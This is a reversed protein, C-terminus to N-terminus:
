TIGQRSYTYHNKLFCEKNKQREFELIDNNIFEMPQQFYPGEEINFGTWPNLNSQPPCWPICGQPPVEQEEFKMETKVKLSGDVVLLVTRVDPFFLKSDEGTFDARNLEMTTVAKELEASVEATLSGKIMEFDTDSKKVTTVGTFAEIVNLHFLQRVISLAAATSAVKKKPNSLLYSLHGDFTWKRALTTAYRKVNARFHVKTSM